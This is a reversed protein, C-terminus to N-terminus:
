CGSHVDYIHPITDQNSNHTQQQASPTSSPNSSCYTASSLPVQVALGKCACCHPLMLLSSPWVQPTQRSAAGEAMILGHSCVMHPSRLQQTPLPEVAFCQAKHLM